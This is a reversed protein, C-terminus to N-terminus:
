NYNIITNTLTCIVHKIEFEELCKQIELVQTNDFNLITFHCYRRPGIGGRWKGWCIGCNALKPKPDSKTNSIREWDGLIKKWSLFSVCFNCSDFAPCNYIILRCLFLTYYLLKEQNFVAIEFSHRCLKSISFDLKRKQIILLFCLKKNGLSWEVM